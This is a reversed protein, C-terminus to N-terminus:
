VRPTYGLNKCLESVSLSYKLNSGDFKNLDIKTGVIGEPEGIYVKLRKYADRGRQSDYPLMGRIIRRVLLNPVKSWKPSHEPNPRFVISRRNLYKEVIPKKKGSILMKECNFLIVSEGELLKKAIYTGVRGLKLDTGDILLM